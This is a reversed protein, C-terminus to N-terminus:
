QFFHLIKKHFENRWNAVRPLFILDQLASWVELRHRCWKDGDALYNARHRWNQRQLRPCANFHAVGGVM